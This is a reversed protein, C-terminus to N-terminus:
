KTVLLFMLKLMLKLVLGLFFVRLGSKFKLVFCYYNAGIEDECPFEMRIGRNFSAVAEINPSWFCIHKQNSNLGYDVFKELIRTSGDRLWNIPIVLYVRADILYVVYFM